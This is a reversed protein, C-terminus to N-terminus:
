RTVEKRFNLVPVRGGQKEAKPQANQRKRLRAQEKKDQEEQAAKEEMTLVIFPESIMQRMGEPITMVDAPKDPRMDAFWKNRFEELFLQSKKAVYLPLVSGQVDPWLKIKKVERQGEMDISLYGSETKVCKNYTSDNEMPYFLAKVNGVVDAHRMVTVKERTGKHEDISDVQEFFAKIRNGCLQNFYTDEGLHEVLLGKNPILAWDVSSSDRMHVNIENDSSVQREGTWVVPHNYLNLITDRESVKMEGSQAQLDKRYFRAGNSAKIVRPRLKFEKQYVNFLSDNGLLRKLKGDYEKQKNDRAKVRQEPTDTEAKKNKSVPVDDAVWRTQAAEKLAEAIPVPGSFLESYTQNLAKIDNANIANTDVNLKILQEQTRQAVDMDDAYTWLTDAHLYATDVDNRGFQRVLANGTAYSVNTYQNHYGFDGTLIVDDQKDTLRVHSRAYGFSERRNYYITDGVLTSSDKYSLVPQLGKQKYLKSVGNETVFYGGATHIKDDGSTITTRAVITAKKTRTSYKIRSTRMEYNDKKNVLLVHNEFDAVKNKFNYNGVDSSLVSGDVDILKAGNYFTGVNTNVNYDVDDTDTLRQGNQEFEVNGRLELMDTNGYYHMVDARGNVNDRGQMRVHGFADISGETSNYYASDCYLRMGEKSFEVNGVVIIYNPNMPDSKMLDAHELFAKNPQNRNAQPIQPKIRKINEPMAGPLVAVAPQPMAPGTQAALDVDLGMLLVFLCLLRMSTKHWKFIHTGSAIM